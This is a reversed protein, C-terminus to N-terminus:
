RQLIGSMLLKGVIGLPHGLKGVVGEGLLALSLPDLNKSV